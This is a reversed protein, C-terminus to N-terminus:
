GRRAHGCVGPTILCGCQLVRRLWACGPSGGVKIEHSATKMAAENSGYLHSDDNAVKLLIGNKLFKRGGAVGALSAPALTRASPPLALERVVTRALQSAERAFDLYLGCLLSSRQVINAATSTDRCLYDVFEETWKRGAGDSSGSAAGGSDATAHESAGQGAGAGSAGNIDKTDLKVGDDLGSDAATIAFDDACLQATIATYASADVACSDDWSDYEHYTGGGAANGVDDVGWGDYRQRSAAM